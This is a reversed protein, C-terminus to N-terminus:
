LLKKEMRHLPARYLDSQVLMQELKTQVKARDLDNPLLSMPNRAASRLCEVVETPGPAQQESLHCSMALGVIFARDEPPLQMVDTWVLNLRTKAIEGATKGARNGIITALFLLAILITLVLVTKKSM